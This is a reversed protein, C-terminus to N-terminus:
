LSRLYEGALRLRSGYWSFLEGDVLLVRTNPLESQFARVHKEKFPFPESSLLLCDPKLQKIEAMTVAPYRDQAILNRFGAHTLMEDIFTSGGAAMIPAQWILYIATGRQATGGWFGQCVDKILQAAEEQRNTLHGIQRMMQLADELNFIDSMWVPYKEALQEIGEKYNEEKNGIILDPQLKDIVEFRFKKTGGVITKEQRLRKPHVCFKTIGVLQEELGLDVLLETQSPVLSVIRQPIVPITVERDMQDMYSKEKM